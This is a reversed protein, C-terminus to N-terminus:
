PLFQQQLCIKIRSVQSDDVREFLIFAQVKETISEFFM